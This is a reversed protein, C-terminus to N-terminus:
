KKRRFYVVCGGISLFLLTGPEPIVATINTNVEDYVVSLTGAGGYATVTGDTLLAHGRQDGYLIFTGGTIDMSGSGSGIQFRDAKLVGGDLQVHGNATTQGLYLLDSNIVEGGTIRYESNGRIGVYSQELSITGGSMELIGVSGTYVGLRTSTAELTGGNIVLHGYEDRGIQVHGGFANAGTEIHTYNETGVTNNIRVEDNGTPLEGTDWNTKTTWLQDPGGNTWTVAANSSGVLVIIFCMLLDKKRIM